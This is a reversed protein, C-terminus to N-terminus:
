LISVLDFCIDNLTIQSGMRHMFPIQDCILGALIIGIAWCDIKDSIMPLGLLLEPPKFKGVIHKRNLYGTDKEKALGLDIIKVRPRRGNRFDPM